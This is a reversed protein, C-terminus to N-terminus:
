NFSRLARVATHNERYTWHFSFNFFVEVMVILHHVDADKHTLLKRTKECIMGFNTKIQPLLRPLVSVSIYIDRSYGHISESGQTGCCVFDSWSSIM